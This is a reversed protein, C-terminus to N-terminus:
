RRALVDGLGAADFAAVTADLDESFHAWSDVHAILV